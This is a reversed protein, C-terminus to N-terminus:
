AHQTDIEEGLYIDMIRADRRVADVTGEVLLEGLHLVTVQDALAFAVDVDHSVLVLTVVGRIQQLSATMGKREAESLGATPEDLLLVQPAMALAVVLELQRQEGHSLLRVPVHRRETLGGQGLMADVRAMAPGYSTAARHMAFTAGRAQAALLVNEEVTLRAFLSTIQFTRGLGKQARVHAPHRTVDEGGLYIRGATPREVGSLLHFLTTKGAGNPGIIARCEGAEIALDVSRVATLGGFRKSLGEAALARM